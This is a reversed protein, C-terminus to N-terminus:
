GARQPAARCVHTRSHTSAHATHPQGETQMGGPRAACQQWAGGPPAAAQAAAKVTPANCRRMAVWRRTPIRPLRYPNPQHSCPCKSGELQSICPGRKQCRTVFEAACVKPLLTAASQQPADCTHMLTCVSQPDRYVGTGEWVRGRTVSAAHAPLCTICVCAENACCICHVCTM